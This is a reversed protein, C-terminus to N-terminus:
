LKWTKSKCPLTYLLAIVIFGLKEDIVVTKRAGMICEKANM